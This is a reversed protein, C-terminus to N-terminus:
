GQRKTITAESRAIYTSSACIVAAGIWVWIEPVEDLILFGILAGIPLRRFALALVNSTDAVEFARSQARQTLMSEAGLPNVLVM